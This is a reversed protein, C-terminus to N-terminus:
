FIFSLVAGLKPIHGVVRGVVLAETVIFNDPESNNTGKRAPRSCFYQEKPKM